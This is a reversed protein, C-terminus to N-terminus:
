FNSRTMVGSFHPNRWPFHTWARVTRAFYLDESNVFVFEKAVAAFFLLQQADVSQIFASGSMVVLDLDKAADCFFSYPDRCALYIRAKIPMACFLCRTDM